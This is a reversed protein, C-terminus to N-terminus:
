SYTYVLTYVHAYMYINVHAFGHIAIQPDVNCVHIYFPISITTLIPSNM